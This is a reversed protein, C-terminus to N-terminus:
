LSDLFLRQQLSVGLKKLPQAYALSSGLYTLLSTWALELLVHAYKLQRHVREMLSNAEPHYSTTMAHQM